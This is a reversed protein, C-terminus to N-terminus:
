ALCWNDMAGSAPQRYAKICPQGTGYHTGKTWTYECSPTHVGKQPASPSTPQSLRPLHGWHQAHLSAKWQTPQVLRRVHFLM